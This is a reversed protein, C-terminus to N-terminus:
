ANEPKVGDALEKEARLMEIRILLKQALDDENTNKYLLSIQRIVEEASDFMGLETYIEASLLEAPQMWDPDQSNFAIVKAVVEIANVYDKKMVMLKATIYLKQPSTDKSLEQDWGYTALVAEAESLRGGDILALAQCIRSREQLVPDQDDALIKSSIEVSKDFNRTKYHLEMLLARYKTLNAPLDNFEVFSSIAHDLTTIAREYERNEIMEALKETDINVEFIIEKITNAGLRILRPPKGTSFEVWDGGDRGVITGEWSKDSLMILTAKLSVAYGSIPAVFIVTLVFSFILKNM